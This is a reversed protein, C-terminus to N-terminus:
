EGEPAKFGAEFLKIAVAKADQPKLVSGADDFLACNVKEIFAEREKEKETKLSKGHNAHFGLELRKSQVIVAAEAPDSFLGLFYEKGDMKVRARWMGTQEHWNVGCYGSKSRSQLGQNQCNGKRDVIRLNSISNDESDGNVHDIEDSPWAGYVMAWVVRHAYHSNKGISVKIYKKNKKSVATGAPQGACRNSWSVWHAKNEFSKEPREKWELFGTSADCKLISALYDVPPLGEGNWEKSEPEQPKKGAEIADIYDQKNEGSRELYKDVWYEATAADAYVALAAYTDAASKRNEILEDKSVSDKDDLWKM